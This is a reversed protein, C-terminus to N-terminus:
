ASFISFNVKGYKRVESFGSLHSYGKKDSHEFIFMGGPKLIGSNMIEWPLTEAEKLDFPPDAFVIDFTATTKKIYRFACSKIVNIQEELDLEQIVKTIYKYHKYNNEVAVIRSCGRSAFEYSISGTGSFLDLVEVDEFDIINNLVNFINEKAFDTTPRAKFSGPPSFRRGKLAGSVIRM